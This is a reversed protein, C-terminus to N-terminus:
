DIYRIGEEYESLKEKFRGIRKNNNKGDKWIWDKDFNGRYFNKYLLIVENSFFNKFM